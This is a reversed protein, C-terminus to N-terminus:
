QRSQIVTVRPTTKILKSSKKHKYTNFRKQVENLLCQELKLECQSQNEVMLQQQKMQRMLGRM